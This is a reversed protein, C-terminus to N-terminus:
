QSPGETQWRVIGRIVSYAEEPSINIACHNKKTDEVIVLAYRNRFVLHSLRDGRKPPGRNARVWASWYKGRRGAYPRERKGLNLYWTLRALEGTLSADLISFRIACVWRKFHKDWYVSSSRSFAAYEGPQIRPVFSWSIEPEAAPQTQRDFPSKPMMREAVHLSKAHAASM